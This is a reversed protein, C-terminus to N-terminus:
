YDTRSERDKRLQEEYEDREEPTDFIMQTNMDVAVTCALIDHIATKNHTVLPVIVQALLILGVLLLGTSGGYGFFLLVLLLVPIMTEITYKGLLSRVFLMFPTIRVSDKRMLAIGFAKKGLTQGNKLLLPVVFELIVFAGFIGLSLMLLTTTLMKTYVENAEEDAALADAAEQYVALEEETMQDFQEQTTFFDIGYTEEYHNYIERMKASQSDMDLAYSLLAMFGVALTVLLIIDLLWASLRKMIGAKQVTNYM